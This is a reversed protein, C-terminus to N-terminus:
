PENRETPTDDGGLRLAAIRQRFQAGKDIDEQPCRWGHIWANSIPAENAKVMFEIYADLEAVLRRLRDREARVAAAKLEPMM